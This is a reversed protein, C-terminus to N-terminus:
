SPLSVLHAAHEDQKALDAHDRVIVQPSLVSPPKLMSPTASMSFLSSINRAHPSVEFCMYRLIGHHNVSPGDDCRCKASMRLLASASALDTHIWVCFLARVFSGVSRDANRLVLERVSAHLTM